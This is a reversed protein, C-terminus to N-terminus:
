CWWGGFTGLSLGEGQGENLSQEALKVGLIQEICGYPGTESGGEECQHSDAFESDGGEVVEIWHDVDHGGINASGHIMMVVMYGDELERACLTGSIALVNTAHCLSPGDVGDRLQFVM